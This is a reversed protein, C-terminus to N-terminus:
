RLLCPRKPDFRWNPILRQGPNIAAFARYVFADFDIRCIANAVDRDTTM